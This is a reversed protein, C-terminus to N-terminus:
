EFLRGDERAYLTSNRLFGHLHKFFDLTLLRMANNGSRSRKWAAKDANEKGNVAGQVGDVRATFSISCRRRTVESGPANGDKEGLSHLAMVCDPPQGARRIELIREVSQDTGAGCGRRCLEVEMANKCSLM